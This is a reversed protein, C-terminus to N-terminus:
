LPELIGGRDLAKAVQRRSARAAAASSAKGDAEGEVILGRVATEVRIAVERPEISALTSFSAIPAALHAM